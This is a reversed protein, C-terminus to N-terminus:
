IGIYASPWIICSGSYPWIEYLLASELAKLAVSPYLRFTKKTSIFAAVLFLIASCTILGALIMGALRIKTLYALNSFLISRCRLYGIVIFSHNIFLCNPVCSFTTNIYTSISHNSYIINWINIQDSDKERFYLFKLLAPTHAWWGLKGQLLQFLDNLILYWDVLTSSVTLILHIPILVENCIIGTWYQISHKVCHIVFKLLLTQMLRDPQWIGIHNALWCIIMDWDVLMGNWAQGSRSLTGRLLNPGYPVNHLPLNPIWIHWSSQHRICHTKCSEWRLPLLLSICIASLSYHLPFVATLNPLFVRSSYTLIACFLKGLLIPWSRSHYTNHLDVVRGRRWESIMDVGSCPCGASIDAKSGIRSTVIGLTASVKFLTMSSILYPVLELSKVMTCVSSAFIVWSTRFVSISCFQFICRINHSVM